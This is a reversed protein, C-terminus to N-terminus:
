IDRKVQQKTHAHFKDRLRLYLCLSLTDMILTIFFINPFRFPFFYCSTSSFQVILLKM